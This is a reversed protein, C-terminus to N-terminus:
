DKKYYVLDMRENIRDIRGTRRFGLKEYLHCNEEEQLITELEWNHEGHIQMALRIAHQAYKKGRQQKMIFIPSIRRCTDQEIIRVAGVKEGGSVIFYYFSGDSLRQVTRELKENAPNIDYDRYKELLESFAQLQMQWITQADDAGARILEVM